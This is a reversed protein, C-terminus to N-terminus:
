KKILMSSNSRNEHFSIYFLILSHQVPQISITLFNNPYKQLQNQKEDDRLCDSVNIKMNCCNAIFFRDFMETFWPFM